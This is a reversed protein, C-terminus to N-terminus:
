SASGPAAVPVLDFGGGTALICATGSAQIGLVTATSGDSSALVEIIYGRDSLMRAVPAEHYKEALAASVISYPACPAEQAIAPAACITIATALALRLM